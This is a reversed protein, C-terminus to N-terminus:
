AIASKIASLAAEDLTRPQSGTGAAWHPQPIPRLPISYTAQNRSSTPDVIDRTADGPPPPEPPMTFVDFYVFKNCEVVFASNTNRQGFGQASILEAELLDTACEGYVTIGQERIRAALRTFESDSSVLCFSGFRGTYLLDMADIIMAGDTANKGTTYAFRQIPILSHLLLYERWGKMLPSTRDVYIRRVSVIGYNAVEAMLGAIIQLSM